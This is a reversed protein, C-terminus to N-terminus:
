KDTRNFKIFVWKKSIRSELQSTIHASITTNITIDEEIVQKINRENLDIIVELHNKINLLKIEKFRIDLDNVIYTGIEYFSGNIEEFHYNFDHYSKIILEKYLTDPLLAKSYVFRSVLPLNESQYKVINNEHSINVINSNDFLDKKIKNKAFPNHIIFVGDSISEPTEKCVQKFKYNPLDTDHHISVIHNFSHDSNSKCLSSLKGLSLSCTFIIASIEKMKENLFLGVPISSSTGPKIISEIKIYESTSPSYYGGFLLGMISYIFEGGYHIQDFSALAIVFPKDKKIWDCKQYNNIYKNYKSHIANSYRTIGETIILDFNSKKYLPTLRELVDLPTRNSEPEGNKKIEAVVAEVYFEEPKRIIFDPRNKDFDLTLGLDKFLAFLLFEWLSSHFTTQFEKVIKNDRDSFGKVWEKVIRREGIMTPEDRLFKFKSHLLEDDLDNIKDFIDLEM